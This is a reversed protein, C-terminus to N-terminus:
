GLFQIRHFIRNTKKTVQITHRFPPKLCEFVEVESRDVDWFFSESEYEALTLNQRLLDFEHFTSSQCRTDAMVGNMSFPLESLTKFLLTPDAYYEFYSSHLGTVYKYKLGALGNLMLTEVAKAPLSDHISTSLVLPPIYDLKGELAPKKCAGLAFLGLLIAFLSFSPFAKM